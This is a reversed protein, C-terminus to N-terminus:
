WWTIFFETYSSDQKMWCLPSQQEKISTFIEERISGLNLWTKNESAEMGWNKRPPLYFTNTSSKLNIFTEYNIYYGKIAREYEVGLRAKFQYPIYLSTLLCLVQSVTDYNLPNFYPKTCRHYLLPFQKRKLKELKKFLSDNRNPGIWNNLVESSISPDYLYFKYALEMHMVQNTITNEIIFDIEGLTTKGDQIQLNECLIDFNSSSRILHSVVKETLHGLRVNTPLPFELDNPLDLETLRFTPIGTVKTELNNTQIISTIRSKTNM